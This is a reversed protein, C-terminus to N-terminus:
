LTVITEGPGTRVIRGKSVVQGANRVLAELLSFETSTLDVPKGDWEAKRKDPWVTLAGAKLAARAM